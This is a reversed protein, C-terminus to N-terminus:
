GSEGLTHFKVPMGPRVQQLGRVIVMDGENVGDLVLVKDDFREALSVNRRVVTSGADVVLVFSGQQDAQVAAQPLFLGELLNTDHLLVRVYQGPVLISNPNPISARAELTGTTEDVRNSFYDVYGVEPYLTGNTLELTVELSRLDSVDLGETMRKKMAAVYTAESVAFLAEIPDISVLTTLNGTNPGVLDGVSAISRGIRGSIPATITTYSLNVQASTVQAQAAELRANADLTKATLEDMASQSIAGRPLLELGRNYNREANVQNAVASALDAEARALAAQFESADLTYLVDGAEVRDGERFDRTLLYGTVKAQIAVDDRAELRGVYEQEPQYPELVVPEVVVDVMPRQPVEESCATALAVLMAASAIRMM